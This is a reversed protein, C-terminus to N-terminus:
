MFFNYDHCDLHELYPSGFGFVMHNQHNKEFNFFFGKFPSCGGLFNVNQCFQACYFVAALLLKLKEFVV